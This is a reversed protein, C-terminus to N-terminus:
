RMPTAQASAILWRGGERRLAYGVRMSRDRMAGDPGAMRYTVKSLVIATDGRRRVSLESTTMAPVPQRKDPAYFGLMKERPDVEGVPSVEVYDATITAAIAAADFGLRAKEFADVVMLLATDAPAVAAVPAVPAVAAVGAGGTVLLAAVVAARLKTWSAM